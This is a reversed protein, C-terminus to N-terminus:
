SVKEADLPLLNTSATRTNLNCGAGDAQIIVPPTPHKMLGPGLGGVAKCCLRVPKQIKTVNFLTASRSM